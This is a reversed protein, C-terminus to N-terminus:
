GRLKVAPVYIGSLERHWWAGTERREAPTTFRYLYYQARVFRPRRGQFPDRALLRLTPRDAELLKWLFPVFWEQYMPSSLAAFWMLWDLRLHYPAIQPPRRKLDTPKGKFEYERWQTQPTLVADDTGEIVVEYREKTVSGFAGYTGVIHLPDFSANMIQHRSLLNRAPRYSLIVILSTVALMVAVYWGPWELPGARVPVIRALAADDFASVALAITILNLWAFNGSVLLWSQTGVVVIGAVTAVPQPAFLFWPAVLQAFHNGLVELRHIRKPLHHFYWSLPNPMPQTEHHYYLCTLDRWCRDGRMKILGAGFEVRFVVWRMLVIVAFSPATGAAGLFIALFGTECLLSEWGFAYFTQGVNVISLYLAWLLAWWLMAIPLPVLDPAGLLAGFALAGGLTAVGVLVRDSYRVYFLSPSRRFPVQRIFDPAPLLGREGLLPRFQDLAVLFGILYIAALLRQFILRALWYDPAALWDM